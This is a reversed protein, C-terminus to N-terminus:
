EQTERGFGITRRSLSKETSMIERIADFIRRFQGDYRQELADLRLALEANSAILDRLQVFTRMIQINV